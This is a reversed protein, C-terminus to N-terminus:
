RTVDTAGSLVAGNGTYGEIVRAMERGDLELVTTESRQRMQSLLRSLQREVGSGGGGAAAQGGGDADPQAATAVRGSAREVRPTSAEMGSALTDVLGPGADDLDSLPGTDAPSSPLYRDVTDAVRQAADRLSPIKSQIGDVVGDVVSEGKEFWDGTLSDEVDDSLDRAAERAAFARARVGRVFQDVLEQGEEAWPHSAIGRVIWDALRSGAWVVVGTAGQTVGVAFARNLTPGFNRVKKALDPFRQEFRAAMMSVFAEATQRGAERAIGTAGGGSVGATFIRGLDSRLAGIIAERNLGEWTVQGVRLVFDVTSRITMGESGIREAVINVMGALATGLGEAAGDTDDIQSSLDALDRNLDSLGPRVDNDITNALSTLVLDVSNGVEDIVPMRSAIASVMTGFAGAFVLGAGVWKKSFDDLMGAADGSQQATEQFQEGQEELQDTTESIGDPRVRVMLEQVTDAM